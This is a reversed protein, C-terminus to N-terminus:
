RRRGSTPLQPLFEDLLGEMFASRDPFGYATAFADYTALEQQSPRFSQQGSDRLRGRVTRRGIVEGLLGDEDYDEEDVANARHYVDALIKGFLNNRRAHLFARRIVLANSPEKQGQIKKQLQYHAFRDRINQSVMVTCQTSRAGAPGLDPV